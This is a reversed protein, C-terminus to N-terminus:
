TLHAARPPARARRCSMAVTRSETLRLRQPPRAPGRCDLFLLSARSIPPGFAGRGMEIQLIGRAFREPQIGLQRQFREEQPMAITYDTARSLTYPEGVPIRHGPNPEVFYSLTVRM